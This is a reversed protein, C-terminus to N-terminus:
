ISTKDSGTGTDTKVEGTVQWDGGYRGEAFLRVHDGLPVQLGILGFVGVSLGVPSVTVDAAVVNQQALLRRQLEDELKKHDIINGGLGLGAGAYPSVVADPWIIYSLLAHLGIAHIGIDDVHFLRQHSRKYELEGALRVNDSLGGGMRVQATVGGDGET